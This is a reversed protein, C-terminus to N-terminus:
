SRRLVLTVSENRHSLVSSLCTGQAIHFMMQKITSSCPLQYGHEYCIPHMIFGILKDYPNVSRVTYMIIEM